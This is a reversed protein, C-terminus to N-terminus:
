DQDWWAPACVPPEDPEEVYIATLPTTTIIRIGGAFALSPGFITLPDGITPVGSLGTLEGGDTRVFASRADHVVREWRGAVPDLHYRSGSATDFWVPHPAPMDDM